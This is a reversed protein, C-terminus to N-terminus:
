LSVLQITLEGIAAGPNQDSGYYDHCYNEDPQHEDYDVHHNDHDVHDDDHDNDVVITHKFHSLNSWWNELLLEQICCCCSQWFDDYNELYDICWFKSLIMIIMVMIRMENMIYM